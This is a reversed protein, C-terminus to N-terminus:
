KKWEIYMVDIKKKHMLTALAFDVPNLIWMRGKYFVVYFDIRKKREPKYILWFVFFTVVIMLILGLIM